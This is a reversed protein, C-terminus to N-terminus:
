FSKEGLIEGTEAVYYFIKNPEFPVAQAKNDIDFPDDLKPRSYSLTIDIIKADVLKGVIVARVNLKKLKKAKEIGVPLLDKYVFTELRGYTKKVMMTNLYNSDPPSAIAFINKRTRFIEVEAGYVNSGIYRDDDWSILSIQCVMQIEISKEEHLDCNGRSVEYGQKDASYTFEVQDLPFAYQDTFNIPSILGEKDAMRKVYEDETEFEGKGLKSIKSNLLKLFKSPDTGKYNVSFQSGNLVFPTPKWSKNTAKKEAASVNGCIIVTLIFLLSTVNKNKYM